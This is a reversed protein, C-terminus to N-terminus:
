KRHTWYDVGYDFTLETGKTILRNAIFILHLVGRKILWLPQLNPQNSHNIFRSVNGEQLADIVFYKFSWFRTPYQFCYGNLNPNRKNVQRVIGTYEAVFSKEPLDVEAFLGYGLQPNIWKICTDATAGASLQSQYLVEWEDNSSILWEFRLLYPCNRIVEELVEYSPFTLFPRYIVKFNKEFESITLLQPSSRDKLQVKVRLLQGLKLLEQYQWHGLLQAIELSSFGRKELRQRWESNEIPESMRDRIM